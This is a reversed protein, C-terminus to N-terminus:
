EQAHHVGESNAWHAITERYQPFKRILRMAFLVKTLPDFLYQELSNLEIEVQLRSLEGWIDAIPMLALWQSINRHVIADIESDPKAEHLLLASQVWLELVKLLTWDIYEDAMTSQHIHRLLHPLGPYQIAQNQLIPVIVTSDFNRALKLYNGVRRLFLAQHLPAFNADLAQKRLFQALNQGRQDAYWTLLDLSALLPAVFQDKILTSLKRENGMLRTIEPSFGYYRYHFQAFFADGVQSHRLSHERLHRLRNVQESYPSGTALSAVICCTPPGGGCGGNHSAPDRHDVGLVDRMDNEDMEALPETSTVGTAFHFCHALEHYLIASTPFSATGGGQKDIWYGSGNCQSNDYFTAIHSTYPNSADGLPLAIGAISTIPFGAIVFSGDVAHAIIQQASVFGTDHVLADLRVATPGSQSRTYTVQICTVGEIVTPTPENFGVGTDMVSIAIIHLESDSLAFNNVGDTQAIFLSM